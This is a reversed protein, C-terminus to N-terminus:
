SKKKKGKEKGFKEDKRKENENYKDEHEKKYTNFYYPNAAVETEISIEGNFKNNWDVDKFIESFFRVAFKNGLGHNDKSDFLWALTNSHRIEHDGNRMVKFPNFPSDYAIQELVKIAEDALNNKIPETSM